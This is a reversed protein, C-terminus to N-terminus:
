LIPKKTAFSRWRKVTKTKKSLKQKTKWTKKKPFISPFLFFVFLYYWQCWYKEVRESVELFYSFKHHIPFVLLPWTPKKGNKGTTNKETKKPLPLPFLFLNKHFFSSKWDLFRFFSDPIPHSKLKTLQSHLLTSSHKSLSSISPVFHFCGLSRTSHLPNHM